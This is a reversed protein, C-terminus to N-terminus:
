EVILKQITSKGESVVKVFYLGSSLNLNLGNNNVTHTSVLKGAVNFISVEATRETEIMVWGTTPNPYIRVPLEHINAISVRADVYNAEVECGDYIPRVSFIHLGDPVQTIIVPSGAVNGFLTGDVTVEYSLPTGIPATWTLTVTHGDVAAALNTVPECSASRLIVFTAHQGGDGGAVYVFEGTSLDYYGYDYEDGCTFTYLKEDVIDYSVDQGYNIDIGLSGIVTQVGTAPDIKYLMDDALGPGYIFGDSAFDIGIIMNQQTGTGVLTAQRTSLNLTYLATTNSGTIASLYMTSTARNYALGTPTGTAGTIAGLQTFTGTAVAGINFNELVRYITTGDYAEAMPFPSSAIAGFSTLVQGTSVAVSSYSGDTTNGTFAEINAVLVSLSMTNNAPYADDAITVTATLTHNGAAPTWSDMTIVTQEIAALAVGNKTSTYSGGDTLTVTWAAGVAWGNNKVTVTPAVTVGPTVWAPAINNVLLDTFDHSCLQTYTHLTGAFPEGTQEYILAGYNDYVEFTVEDDYTGAVWVLQTSLNNFVEVDVTGESGSGLSASGITSGNQVIQLSGGNWGDGWADHMNVTINCTQGITVQTSVGTPICGTSYIAKVTYTYFGITLTNDNYTLATQTSVLVGNRYVEYNTPTGPAATWTLTVNNNDAGSITANLNTIPDCFNGKTIVFTAHQQGDGGNIQVFAGTTLDYYGYAYVGCTYSYLKDADVDFSVDQGYNINIGLPGIATQAGTAPDIKYLIDDALGPGYIFGDNAFDIAILMNAVTGTGILTATLSGVNLSYLSTTNSSTAVSMFMNGSNMDFALGTPTGTYGSIIGLTTEAGTIPNVTGLTGSNHLRYINTGDYEEAMPFDASAISGIAALTSGDVTNVANYAESTTNGTYAVYNGVYVGVSTINDGPYHEGTVTVTATLTYEGDAPTWTDMNITTSALFALATGTKTSTYSGGNTLTVTWTADVAIGNNKVTVTPIVTGGAPVYTPTISMATLNVVNTLCAQTYSHLVGTSPASTQAYILSGDATNVEFTIESDYSGAQWVLQTALGDFVTITATGEYGNAITATGVQSGNQMIKLAGGNWGDGYSDHMVVTITCLDGIAINTSVGIPTCSAGYNAKVTYTHNGVPVTNDTYTLATVTNLLVGDRLVDYNVPTGTATWTLTVNGGAFQSTLNAVPDCLTAMKTIVFTGIQGTITSIANFAGTNLDYYGFNRTQGTPTCTYTYLKDEVMDYSVDQGYAITINMPGVATTAGTSPDIKYLIGDIQGPGYLFGDNAFDVGRILATCTGTGVLTAHFTTMDLTYLNPNYSNTATLIYWVGSSHNYALGQPTGTLGTITGVQVYNGGNVTGITGNDYLRYVNTGDFEEGMPFLPSGSITGLAVVEAGDALNVGAYVTSTTNGYFADIQMVLCSVIKENDSLDGDGTATVTATLTHTGAVPTWADMNITTYALFGLEVGTKTSTYSGGDTLTVTWTAGIPDGMNRITVTPVVPVDPNAFTPTVANVALNVPFVECSTTFTTCTESPYGATNRPHVFISVGSVYEVEFSVETSYSGATWVLDTAVGSPLLVNAIGEYGTTITMTPGVQAGNQMFTLTGGNWGDGYSDHMYVVVECQSAVVTTISMSNNVPAVDLACTVTATLTYTGDAPTWSDMNITASGGAAIAVGSKTSTYSGGDTLTVTWDAAAVAIGLSTVTVTPIATSGSYVFAPAIASVKLDVDSVDVLEINDVAWGYAWSGGDDYYFCITVSSMGVYASLDLEHTEWGINAGPTPTYIDSWTTGADTSVQVKLIDNYLNNYFQDFIIKLAGVSSFNQVPLIMRANTSLVSAGFGDDNIYAYTTHAPIPFYTSQGSTGVQWAGGADQTLTFGAPMGGEFDWFAIQGRTYTRNASLDTGTYPTSIKVFPREEIVSNEIPARNQTNLDSIGSRGERTPAVIEPVKGLSHDSTSMTKPAKPVVTSEKDVRGVSNVTSKTQANLNVGILMIFALLFILHKKM